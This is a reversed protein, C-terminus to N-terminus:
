FSVITSYMIHEPSVNCTEGQVFGKSKKMQFSGHKLGAGNKKIRIYFDQELTVGETDEYFFGNKTTKRWTYGDDSLSIELTSDEVDCKLKKGLGSEDCEFSFAYDENIGQLIEDFEELAGIYSEMLEIIKKRDETTTGLMYTGSNCRYEEMALICADDNSATRLRRAVPDEFLKVLVTDELSMVLRLDVTYSDLEANVAVIVPVVPSKQLVPLVSRGDNNDQLLINQFLPSNENKMSLRKGSDNLVIYRPKFNIDSICFDESVDLACNLTPSVVSVDVVSPFGSGGGVTGVISIKNEISQELNCQLQAFIIDKRNIFLNKEFFTKATERMKAKETDDIGYQYLPTVKGALVEATKKELAVIRNIYPRLEEEAYYAAIRDVSVLLELDSLYQDLVGRISLSNIKIENNDKTFSGSIVPLPRFGYFYARLLKLLPEKKGTLLYQQEDAFLLETCISSNASCECDILVGASATRVFDLEECLDTSRSTVINCVLDQIKVKGTDITVSYNFILTESSASGDILSLLFTLLAQKDVAQNQSFLTGQLNLSVDSQVYQNYGYQFRAKIDANQSLELTSEITLRLQTGTASTVLTGKCSLGPFDTLSMLMDCYKPVFPVIKGSDMRNGLIDTHFLNFKYQTKEAIGVYINNNQKLAKAYPILIEFKDQTDGNEAFYSPSESSIVSDSADLIEAAIGGYLGYLNSQVTSLTTLNIDAKICATGQGLTQVIIKETSIFEAETNLSYFLDWCDYYVDCRSFLIVTKITIEDQNVFPCDSPFSWLCGGETESSICVEEVWSKADSLDAYAKDGSFEMKLDAICVVSSKDSPSWQVYGNETQYLFVVDYIENKHSSCKEMRVMNIRVRYFGNNDPERQLKTELSCGWYFQPKPIIYYKGNRLQKPVEFATFRGATFVEQLKITGEEVEQYYPM